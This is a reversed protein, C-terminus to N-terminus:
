GRVVFNRVHWACKLSHSISLTMFAMVQNSVVATLVAAVAIGDSVDSVDFTALFDSM